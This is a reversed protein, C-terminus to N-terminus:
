VACKGKGKERTGQGKKTGSAGPRLRAFTGDILASPGSDQAGTDRWCLVRADTEVDGILRLSRRPPLGRLPDIPAAFLMTETWANTVLQIGIAESDIRGNVTVPLLQTRPDAKGPLDVVVTVMAFPVRAVRSARVTTTPVLPGYIPACWGLGSGDTTGELVDFDDDPSLLWIGQDDGGDIFLRGRAIKTTRWSPALHWHLDARHRGAGIVRDVIWWCGPRSLVTRHHVLPSYGEHAGEFYDFSKPSRWDLLRADTASGWHFPGDPNSQSQGNLTLTNHSITSRFRDRVALNSTYCGTGPDILLPRGRVSLAISLADAHAHGGNLFGHRGADITLHDGYRPRSVFYGSDRFATSQWLVPHKVAPVEGTMWAVEEAPAGVALAPKGLLQAALQLSDSADAPARGCIPLTLGGDEDGFSPLRGADDALGRAFEALAAAAMEFVAAAEDKTTRAVALALLYFDLTYRHYHTSLEAHGGDPNIQRDIQEILVERGVREWMQARRLEPVTRGAIYLALAEGLLHTNPSFYRSLNHEILRLQRDLGLLLDITWPSQGESRAAKTGCPAVFFHLAWLWSISRIGLELMSAWNIGLLPPNAAMWSALHDIFGTRYREDGTLWYARGLKLWYQHRNLEWVIKHDGCMPDLYPVRTWFLRPASRHHVPDFHWDIARAAQATRRKTWSLDRYGLLDFRGELLPEARDAADQHAGPFGRAIAQSIAARKSPDLVFRPARTAFHDSLSEHAALWDRRRLAAIAVHLQPLAPQLAKALASRDWAPPRVSAAVRAAECRAATLLRHRLEAGDMALVRRFLQPSTM